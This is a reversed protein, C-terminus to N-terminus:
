TESLSVPTSEIEVHPVQCDRIPRYLPVFSVVISNGLYLLPQIVVFLAYGAVLPKSTILVKTRTMPTETTHIVSSAKVYM